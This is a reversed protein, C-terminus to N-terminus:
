QLSSYSSDRENEDEIEEIIDCVRRHQDRVCQLDQREIDTRLPESYHYADSNEAGAYRGM